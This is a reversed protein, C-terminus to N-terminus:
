QPALVAGGLQTKLEIQARSGSTNMKQGGNGRSGQWKHASINSGQEDLKKKQQSQKPIIKCHVFYTVLIYQQPSTNQCIMVLESCREATKHQTKEGIRETFGYLKEQDRECMYLDYGNILFTTKRSVWMTVIIHFEVHTYNSRNDHCSLQQPEVSTNIDHLQNHKM